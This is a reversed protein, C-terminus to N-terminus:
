RRQGGVTGFVTLMGVSQALGGMQEFTDMMLVPHTANLYAVPDSGTAHALAELLEEPTPAFERGDVLAVPRGVQAALRTFARLLASKGVGGRGSVAFITPQAPSAFLWREFAALETGRGVFFEGELWSLAERFTPV